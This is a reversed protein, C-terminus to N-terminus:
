QIKLLFNRMEKANKYNYAEDEEWVNLENLPPIWSDQEIVSRTAFTGPNNFPSFGEGKGNEDGAMFRIFLKAASVSKAENVLFIKSTAPVSVRPKLEPIMDLPAGENVVDRLKVSTSLALLPKEATSDTVADVADGGSSMLIADNGLLRKIFEYGANETGDLELEENFKEEYAAAMEESHRVMTMFLDQTGSSALPDSMLIKSKWEPTTLDWWNDIPPEEFVDTNYLITSVESILPIGQYNGYPQGISEMIEEPQYNYIVRAPLIENAWSGSTGKGFIIDVNKIGSEHERKVKELIDADSVKTVSAKVGPFAEEFALGIKEVASTASYVVVEGEEKAKEYLEETTEYANVTEEWDSPGSSAEATKGDPKVDNGSCATVLLLSGILFLFVCKKYNRM